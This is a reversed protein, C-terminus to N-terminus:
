ESPHVQPYFSLFTGSDSRIQHQQTSPEGKLIQLFPLLFPLFDIKGCQRQRPCTNLFDVSFHLSLPISLSLILPQDQPPPPDFPDPVTKQSIDPLSICVTALLCYDINGFSVTMTSFIALSRARRTVDSERTAVIPDIVMYMPLM